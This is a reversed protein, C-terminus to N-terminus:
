DGTLYLGKPMLQATARRFAMEITKPTTHMEDKILEIYDDYSYSRVVFYRKNKHRGNLALTPDIVQGDVIFFAHKAFLSEDTEFIQVGGFAVSISSTDDTPLKGTLSIHAVNTYCQNLKVIDQNENAIQISLEDNAYYYKM